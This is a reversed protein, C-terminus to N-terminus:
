PLPIKIYEGVVNYGKIVAPRKAILKYWRLVNSYEEIKLGHDEILKNNIQM